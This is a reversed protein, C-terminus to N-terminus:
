QEMPPASGNNLLLVDRHKQFYAYLRESLLYVESGEALIQEGIEDFRQWKTRNDFPNITQYQEETLDTRGDTYIHKAEAFLDALTHLQLVHLGAEVIHCERLSYQQYFLDVFGNMDIDLRLVLLLYAVEEITTLPYGAGKKTTLYDFLEVGFKEPPLNLIDLLSKSAHM